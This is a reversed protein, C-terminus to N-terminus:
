TDRERERERERERLNEFKVKISKCVNGHLIGNNITLEGSHPPLFNRRRILKLYVTPKRTVTSIGWIHM